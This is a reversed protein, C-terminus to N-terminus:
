HASALITDCIKEEPRRFTEILDGPPRGGYGPTRPCIVTLARQAFASVPILGWPM